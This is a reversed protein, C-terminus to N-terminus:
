VAADSKKQKSLFHQYRQENQDWQHNVTFLSVFIVIGIAAIFVVLILSKNAQLVMHAREYWGSLTSAVVALIIGLGLPLGIALKRLSHKKKVREKSWYVVFKKEEETLM